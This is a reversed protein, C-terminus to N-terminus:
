QCKSAQKGVNCFTAAARYVHKLTNFGLDADGLCEETVLNVVTTIATIFRFVTTLTHKSEKEKRKESTCFYSLRAPISLVAKWLVGVLM